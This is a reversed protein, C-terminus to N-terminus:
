ITLYNISFIDFLEAKDRSNLIFKNNHFLAPISPIKKKNLFAKFLSRYAKPSTRSNM